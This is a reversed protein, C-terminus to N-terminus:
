GVQAKTQMRPALTQPYVYLIPSTALVSARRIWKRTLNVVARPKRFESRISPAKRAAHVRRSAVVAVDLHVSTIPFAANLTPPRVLSESSRLAAGPRNVGLYSRLTILVEWNRPACCSRGISFSELRLPLSSIPIRKFHIVTIIESCIYVYM